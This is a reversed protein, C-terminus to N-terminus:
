GGTGYRRTGCHPKNQSGGFINRRGQAGIVLFPFKAFKQYIQLSERNSSYEFLAMVIRPNSTTDPSGSLSSRFGRSGKESPTARGRRGKGAV